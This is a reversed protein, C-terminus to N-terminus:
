GWRGIEIIEGDELFECRGSVYCINHFTKGPSGVELKPSNSQRETQRKIPGRKGRKGSQINRDPHQMKQM